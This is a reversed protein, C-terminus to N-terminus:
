FMDEPAVFRDEIEPFEEDLPEWSDLLAALAIKCRAGPVGQVGAAYGEDRVSSEKLDREVASGEPDKKSETMGGVM